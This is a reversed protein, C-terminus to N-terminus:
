QKQLMLIRTTNTTTPLCIKATNVLEGNLLVTAIGLTDTPNTLSYSVELHGTSDTYIYSGSIDLYEGNFDMYFNNNNEDISWEGVASIPFMFILPNCPTNINTPLKGILSASWDNELTVTGEVSGSDLSSYITTDQWVLGGSFINVSDIGGVPVALHAVTDVNSIGSVIVTLSTLGYTGSMPHISSGDEDCGLCALLFVLALIYFSKNQNNRM